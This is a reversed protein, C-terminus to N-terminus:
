NFTLVVSLGKPSGSAITDVDVFIMDGTAVDNNSINIIGNTAYYNNGSITIRTSLMDANTDGRVRRIQITNTGTTGRTHIRALAATLKFGNLSAPIAIGIVGDGVIITANSLKVVFNLSAGTSIGSVTGDSNLSWGTGLRSYDRSSINGNSITFDGIMPGSQLASTPITKDPFQTVALSEQLGASDGKGKSLERQRLMFEDYNYNRWDPINEPM